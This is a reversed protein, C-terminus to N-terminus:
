TAKPLGDEELRSIGELLERVWHHRMMEDANAWTHELPQLRELLLCNSSDAKLRRAINPHRRNAVADYVALEREIAVFSRLGHNIYFIADDDLNDPIIYQFPLKIVIDSDLAYVLGQSPARGISLCHDLKDLFPTIFKL